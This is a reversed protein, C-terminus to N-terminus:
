RKEKWRPGAPLAGLLKDTLRLTTIWILDRTTYPGQEATRARSRWVEVPPSGSYLIAEAGMTLYKPGEWGCLSNDWYEDIWVELFAEAGTSPVTRMPPSDGTPPRTAGASFSQPGSNAVTYAEYGRRRLERVLASRLEEDIFLSCHEGPQYTAAAVPGVAVNQINLAAFAPDPPPPPPATACASLLLTLVPILVGYLAKM